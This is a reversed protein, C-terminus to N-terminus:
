ITLRLRLRLRRDTSVDELGLGGDLVVLSGAVGKSIPEEKSELVTALADDMLELAELDVFCGVVRRETGTNTWIWSAEVAKAWM